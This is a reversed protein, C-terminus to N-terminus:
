YTDIGLIDFVFAYQRALEKLSNFRGSAGGHGAEMNVHLYLRNNDTKNARLRAVWKAPEWYQVQSDQLGTTVLMNPYDKKEVQDYPSYSLMYEYQEKISPNGWELWEFTTLPITEDMMTTVVDVFPVAAIIGRYLDPRLNSIAGMLLGGASGGSAFLKDKAVYKNTILWESCDIFDYFTNKKHMMKGDDYWAGGMEQGGRVHAVAWIFGRDLLSIRTSSFTASSSYGYAGYGYIWGPMSGDKKFLDKRYVLSLPIIKGDRSKVLVRETQYNQRNFGGLVEQEKVLVKERSDMNYDYTSSPTTMSQYSYRLTNTQFEPNYGISAEYAAEGFDVEHSSGDSWRIVRIRALGQYSHETVLYDRFFDVGELLLTDNEPIVDKWNAKGCASVPTEVLRFNTAELNTYIYLKDGSNHFVSYKVNNQLPNVLVPKSPKDADILLSYSADTRGSEIIIYKKSKSKSVSCNLTEDNETFILQDGSVPKGILHRMVKSDRLTVPDPVGYYLSLNDNTWVCGGRTNPIVDALFKKTSIDLIRITYFNRGATDMVVAVMRHNPSVSVSFSLFSKGKGLENGDVLVEEDAALSGKKRCFVPYEGGTVYKSYYYYDDIKYPVSVDQEKLRRRMENYLTDQMPRTHAMMTDTYHNEAKLYNIVATDERERLWFYNDVRRDGNKSLVEHPIIRAVPPTVEPLAPTRQNSCSASFIVLSMLIIFRFNKFNPKM